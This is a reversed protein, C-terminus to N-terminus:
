FGMRCQVLVYELPKALAKPRDPRVRGLSILRPLTEEQGGGIAHPVEQQPRVRAVGM